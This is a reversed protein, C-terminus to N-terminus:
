HTEASHGSSENLFQGLKQFHLWFIMLELIFVDAGLQKQIKFSSM